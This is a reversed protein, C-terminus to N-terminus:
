QVIGRTKLNGILSNLSSIVTALDADSAIDAVIPKNATFIENDALGNVTTTLTEITDNVSEIDSLHAFCNDDVLRYGIYDITIIGTESANINAFPTAVFERFVNDTDNSKFQWQGKSPKWWETM